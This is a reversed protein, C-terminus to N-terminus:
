KANKQAYELRAREIDTTASGMAAYFDRAKRLDRRKWAEDAAARLRRLRVDEQFVQEHMRRFMELRRFFGKEGLLAKKGHLRLDDGIQELMPALRGEDPVRLEDPPRLEGRLRLIDSLSYWSPEAKATRRALSVRVGGSRHAWEVRVRSAESEYELLSAGDLALRFGEDLLFSFAARAEDAFRPPVTM